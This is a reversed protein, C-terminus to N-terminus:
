ARARGSVFRDVGRLDRRVTVAELGVGRMAAAVRVAQEGGATELVLAGGPRLAGPACALLARITVLGDLGGDVARAPEHRAVEPMLTPLLASPLYPPNAVILDWGGRLGDLLDAAVVHVRAALGLDVANRRALAAAAPCIDTAIVRVAPREAAIACAICGSGTGVDLVCAAGPALLDLAWGALLETEPRPVLVDPTIRLRLGRFEEWGLIRQLPERRARRDVAEAYRALADGPLVRDLALHLTLRPM